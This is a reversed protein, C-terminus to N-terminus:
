NEKVIKEYREPVAPSDIIKKEEYYPVDKYIPANWQAVGGHHSCAGRGTACTPSYTGDRCLTCYGVVEKTYKTITEIHSKEEVAPYYKYLLYQIGDLQCNEIEKIGDCIIVENKNLKQVNSEISEKEFSNNDINGNYIICLFVICLVSIIILKKNFVKLLKEKM